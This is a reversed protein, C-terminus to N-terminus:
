PFFLCNQSAKKVFEEYIVNEIRMLTSINSSDLPQFIFRTWDALPIRGVVVVARLAMLVLVLSGLLGRAAAVVVAARYLWSNTIM